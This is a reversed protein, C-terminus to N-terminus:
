DPYLTQQIVQINYGNDQLNNMVRELKLMYFNINEFINVANRAKTTGHSFLTLVRSMVNM